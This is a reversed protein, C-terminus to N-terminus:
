VLDYPYNNIGPIYDADIGMRRLKRCVAISKNRNYSYVIVRVNSNYEIDELENYLVNRSGILHSNNFSDTDRVDILDVDKHVSVIRKTCGICIFIFLLIFFRKM